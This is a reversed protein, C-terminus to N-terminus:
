WSRPNIDVVLYMLRSCLEYYRLLYYFLYYFNTPASGM